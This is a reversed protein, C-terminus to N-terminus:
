YLCTILLLDRSWSKKISEEAYYLTSDDDLKKDTLLINHSWPLFHLLANCKQMDTANLVCDAIMRVSINVDTKKEEPRSIAYHCNPCQIQKDLYKGRVVEFRDGNILNHWIQSTTLIFFGDESPWTWELFFPPAKITQQM